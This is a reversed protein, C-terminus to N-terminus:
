KNEEILDREKQLTREFKMGKCFRWGEGEEESTGKKNLETEKKAGLDGSFSDRVLPSREVLHLAM